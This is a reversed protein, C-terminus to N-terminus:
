PMWTNLLIYLLFGVGIALIWAWCNGWKRVPPPADDVQYEIEELPASTGRLGYIICVIGFIGPLPKQALVAIALLIIGLLIMM